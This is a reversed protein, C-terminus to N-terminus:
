DLVRRKVRFFAKDTSTPLNVEADFGDDTYVIQDAVWAGSILNTTKEVIFSEGPVGFWSLRLTGNAPHLDRDITISEPMLPDTGNAQEEANTFGDQDTDATGDLAFTLLESAEWEDPLGDNDVDADQVGDSGPWNDADPLAYLANNAKMYDRLRLWLEWKKGVDIASIDDDEEIRDELNYLEIAGTEFQVVLKYDGDHIVARPRQDKPDSLVVYHPAYIVMEGPREIMPFPQNGANIRNITEVWSAGDINAPLGAVSGTAWEWITPLIDIGMVPVDCQSEAPIGPGRAFSPVRTGGEWQEPKYGRLPTNDSLKAPAGNDAQYIVYTSNRIGLEDIKELVLGIGNDMDTVMAAYTRSSHRTGLPIGEYVDYAAQSYQIDSHVAYHSVQLHFPVRDGVTSEMWATSRGTMSYILKPDGVAVNDPGASGEANGTAGDHADYGHAGPGGGNLHWKGFHAAAYGAASITKLLEAITTEESQIETVNKGPSILLYGTNPTPDNNRNTIDTFGLHTCTKGTQVAYRSPSCNPAPSYARSFRMGEAALREINPTLHYDSKSYLRNTDTMTSLSTWGQDDTYILVFNPYERVDVVVEWSSTASTGDVTTYRFGDLGSFGGNPTYVVSDGGVFASGNTPMTISLLTLGDGEDNRLIDLSNSASGALVQFYDAGDIVPRNDIVPRDGIPSAISLNDVAIGSGNQRGSLAVFNEMTGNWSLQTQSIEAGDFYVVALVEAGSTFEDFFFDAQLLGGAPATVPHSVGGATGSTFIQISGGIAPSWGVFFDAVGATSGSYKGRPGNNGSFDLDLLEMESFSLGIGFGCWRDTDTETGNDTINMSISFGGEALIAANTFNYSTLGVVSASTGDALKLENGFVRTIADSGASDTESYTMPAALGGMGNVLADIDNDDARDFDDQFSVEARSLMAMTILVLVSSWRFFM